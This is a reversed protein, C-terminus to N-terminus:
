GVGVCPVLILGFLRGGLPGCQVVVWKPGAAAAKSSRGSRCPGVGVFQLQSEEISQRPGIFSERYNANRKVLWIKRCQHM